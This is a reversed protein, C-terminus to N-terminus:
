KVNFIKKGDEDEEEYDENNERREEIEEEVIMRWILGKEEREIKESNIKIGEDLFIKERSGWEEEEEEGMKRVEERCGEVIKIEKKIM